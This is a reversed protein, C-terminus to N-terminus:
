LTRVSLSPSSDFIAFVLARAAIRIGNRGLNVLRLRLKSLLQFASGARTQFIQTLPVGPRRNLFSALYTLKSANKFQTAGSHASISMRITGLKTGVEIYSSSESSALLNM